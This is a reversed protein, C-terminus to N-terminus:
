TPVDRALYEEFAKLARQFGPNPNAVERRAQVFRTADDASLGLSSMVFAIVVTASRSVGAHCHVAVTAKESSALAAEIWRVAAPLHALIDFSEDDEMEISQYQITDKHYEHESGLCCLVHTIGHERLMELEFALTLNGLYLHPLILHCPELLAQYKRLYEEESM